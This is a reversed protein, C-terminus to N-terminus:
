FGTLFNLQASTINDRVVYEARLQSWKSLNFGLGLGAMIGDDDGVDAGLRGLLHVRQDVRYEGVLNLWLGEYSVSDTRLYTGNNRYINRKFDGSDMYGLEIATRIHPNQKNAGLCFGGFVQLGNADDYNDISNFTLGAGAYYKNTICHAAAAGSFLSAGVLLLSMKFFTNVRCQFSRRLTQISNM